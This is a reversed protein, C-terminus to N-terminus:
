FARRANFFESVRKSLLLYAGIAVSFVVMCLLWLRVVSFFGFDLGGLKNWESFSLMAGFGCSGAMLWRAWSKGMVLAIAFAANIALVILEWAIGRFGTSIVSLLTHVLALGFGIQAIRTVLSKGDLRDRNHRTKFSWITYCASVAALALLVSYIVKKWYPLMIASAALNRNAVSSEAPSKPTGTPIDAPARGATPTPDPQAPPLPPPPHPAGREMPFQEYGPPPALPVRGTRREEVPRKWSGSLFFRFPTDSYMSPKAEWSMTFDGFERSGGIGKLFGRENTATEDAFKEFDERSPGLLQSYGSIMERAEDRSHDGIKHLTFSALKGNELVRFQLWQAQASIVEGDPLILRIPQVAVECAAPPNVGHRPRLGSEYLWLLSDGKRLDLVVEEAAQCQSHALWLCCLVRLIYHIAMSM